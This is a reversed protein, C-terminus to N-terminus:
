FVLRKIREAEDQNKRIEGPKKPNGQDDTERKLDRVLSVLSSKLQSNQDIEAQITEVSLLSNDQARPGFLTKAIQKPDQTIVSETERNMLGKQWSYKLGQAKAVSSLLLNRDAGSYASEDGMSAMSWKLWTTDDSFMFDVQVLGHKVDGEIPALFHVSIGSKKVWDKPDMNESKVWSKLRAELETKSTQTQDVAIDIDGSSQKKGVSGLIMSATPVKAVTALWELTKPIQHKEIRQTLPDGTASRFVQGGENIMHTSFETLKM